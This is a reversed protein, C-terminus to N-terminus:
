WIADMGEIAEILDLAAMRIREQQESTGHDFVSQIDHRRDTLDRCLAQLQDLIHTAFAITQEHDAYTM